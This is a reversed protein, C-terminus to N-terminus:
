PRARARHRAPARAPAARRPRPASRGPRPAPCGPSGPTSRPARGPRRRTGRARPPSARRPRPRRARHPPRSTRSPARACPARRPGRPRPRSRRRPGRAARRRARPRARAVPRLRADAHEAAPRRPLDDRALGLEVDVQARGVGRGRVRQECPDVGRHIGCAALADLECTRPPKVRGGNSSSRTAGATPARAPARSRAPCGASRRLARAAPRVRAERRRQADLGEVAEARDAVVGARAPLADLDAAQHVAPRQQRPQHEVHEAPSRRPSRRTLDAWTFRLIQAGGRRWLGAGGGAM